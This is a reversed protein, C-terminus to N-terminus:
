ELQSLVALYNVSIALIYCPREFKNESSIHSSVVFM